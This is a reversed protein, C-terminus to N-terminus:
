FIHTKPSALSTRAAKKDKCSSFITNHFSSVFKNGWNWLTIVPPSEKYNILSVRSFSNVSVIKIYKVILINGGLPQVPYCYM